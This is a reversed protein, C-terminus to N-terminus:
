QLFHITLLYRNIVVGGGGPLNDQLHCGNKYMLPSACLKERAGSMCVLIMSVFEGYYKKITCKDAYHSGSYFTHSNSRKLCTSGKNGRTGVGM